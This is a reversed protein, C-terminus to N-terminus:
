FTNKKEGEVRWGWESPKMQDCYSIWEMVQYYAWLSHFKCAPTTPPLSELMVVAKARAVKKCLMNYRIPAMPDNHNANVTGSNGQLWQNGCCGSKAKTLLVSEVLRENGKREQNKPVRVEKRNWNGQINFRM